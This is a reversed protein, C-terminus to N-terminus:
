KKANPPPITIPNTPGREKDAKIQEWIAKQYHNTPAPAWGERCANRYTTRRPNAMGYKKATVAVKDFPEPCPTKPAADLEALSLYSQMLCPQFNSNSAGLLMMVARWVQRTARAALKEGGTGDAALARVNVKAWRADPAVLLTPTGAEDVVQVMVGTGADALLGAVQTEDSEVVKAVLHPGDSMVAATDELAKAAVTKQANAIVVNRGTFPGVIYGGTKTLFRELNAAYQEPTIPKRKHTPQQAHLMSSVVLSVLMVIIVKKM